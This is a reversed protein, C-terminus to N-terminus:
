PRVKIEAGMAELKQFGDFASFDLRIDCKDGRYLQRVFMVPEEGIFSLCAVDLGAKGPPFSLEGAEYDDLLVSQVNMKYDSFSKGSLNEIYKYISIDKIDESLIEGAWQPHIYNTSLAVPQGGVIHKRMIKCVKDEATLQFSKVLYASAEIFGAFLLEAYNQYTDQSHRLSFQPELLFNGAMKRYVVFSGKGKKRVILGENVLGDLAQKITARCLNFEECLKLESPIEMGYPWEEALIKNRVIERLQYYLPIPSSAILKEM